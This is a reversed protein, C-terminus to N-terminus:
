KAPTAGKAARRTYTITMGKVEKGDPGPMFMEFVFTNADKTTTVMRTKVLKGTEDPMMSTTTLVKGDKDYTGEMTMLMPTWSDVWTGVYAKKTPDYGMVGHGTFKTGAMDAEVDEVLWLGGCAVKMTAVGTSKMPAGDPGMMEFALDWTGAKAALKQHEPGPTAPAQAFLPATFSALLLTLTARIKM